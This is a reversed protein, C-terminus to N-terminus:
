RAGQATLIVRITEALIRLDLGFSQHDVYYLDYELKRVCEDFTASYHYRVQAWGTLGPKVTHRLPYSPIERSLTDVFVPREPRPGIVRMDGKLVNWLQPLEDIRTKRLIQGVRTVRPDDEAAWRPIGDSEADVRMSRFKLMQFPTGGLGIRTQRYLVPGGGELWIALTTVVAIPIAIVSLLLAMVLDFGRMALTDQGPERADGPNARSTTMNDGESWLCIASNRFEASSAIGRNAMM